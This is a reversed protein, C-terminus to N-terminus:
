FFTVPVARSSTRLNITIRDVKWFITDNVIYNCSIYCLPFPLLHYSKCATYILCLYVSDSHIMSIVKHKILEKQGSLTCLSKGNMVIETARNSMYFLGRALPCERIKNWQKEMEHLSTFHLHTFIHVSRPSISCNKKKGLSTGLIQM